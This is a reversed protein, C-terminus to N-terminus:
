GIKDGKRILFRQLYLVAEEELNALTYDEHNLSEGKALKLSLSEYGFAEALLEHLCDHDQNMQWTNEGYGLWEALTLQDEWHECKLEDARFLWWGGGLRDTVAVTWDGHADLTQSLVTFQLTPWDKHSVLQGFFFPLRAARMGSSSSCETRKDTM